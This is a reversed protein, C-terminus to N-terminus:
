NREKILLCKERIASTLNYDKPRTQQPTEKFKAILSKQNQNIIAMLTKQEHKKAVEWVATLINKLEQLSADENNVQQNRLFQNNM